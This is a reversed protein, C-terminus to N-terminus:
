QKAGSGCFGGQASPKTNLKDVATIGQGTLANVPRKYTVSPTRTKNKKSPPALWHDLVLAVRKYIGADEVTGVSRIVVSTLSALHQLQQSDIPVPKPDVKVDPGIGKVLEAFDRLQEVTSFYVVLQLPEPDIGHYTPHSGDGGLTKKKDVCLGLRGQIVRAHHCPIVQGALSVRDWPHTPITASGNSGPGQAGGRPYWPVFGSM